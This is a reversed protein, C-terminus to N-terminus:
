TLMDFQYAALWFLVLKSHGEGGENRSLGEETFIGKAGVGM